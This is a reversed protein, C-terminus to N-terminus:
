SIHPCPNLIDLCALLSDYMGQTRCFCIRQLGFAQHKHIMGSFRERRAQYEGEM